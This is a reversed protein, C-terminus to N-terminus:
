TYINARGGKGLLKININFLLKISCNLQKINECTKKVLIHTHTLTQLFSLFDNSSTTNTSPKVNQSQWFKDM